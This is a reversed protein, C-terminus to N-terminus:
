VPILCKTFFFPFLKTLNPLIVFYKLIKRTFAKRVCDAVRVHWYLLLTNFISCVSVRLPPTVLFFPFIQSFNGILSSGGGRPYNLINQIESIISFNRGGGRVLNLFTQFQSCKSPLRGGRISM